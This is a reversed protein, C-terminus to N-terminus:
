PESPTWFRLNPFAALDRYNLTWVPIRERTAVIAVLADELTGRWNSLRNVVGSVAELDAATPYRVELGRRMYVLARQASRQNSERLLWKYVEFVIPLPAVLRSRGEALQAFGARAARHDLDRAHLGAILPGSDLVLM